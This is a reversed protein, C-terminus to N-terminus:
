TKCWDNLLLLDRQLQEHLRSLNYLKSDDACLQMYSNIPLSFINNVYAAFLLPSIVCGQLVGSEVVVEDSVADRVRVRQRRKLLFNTLWNLIYYSTQIFM